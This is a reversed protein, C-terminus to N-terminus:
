ARDRNPLHELPQISCQKDDDQSPGRVRKQSQWADLLPVHPGARLRVSGHVGSATRLSRPGRDRRQARLVLLAHSVAQPPPAAEM